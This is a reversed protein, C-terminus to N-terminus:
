PRAGKSRPKAKPPRPTAPGFPDDDLAAQLARAVGVARKVDATVSEVTSVVPVPTVALEGAFLDPTGQAGLLEAMPDLNAVSEVIVVAGPVEAYRRYVHCDIVQVDDKFVVENMADEIAKVCNSGDPKRTPLVQGALARRKQAGSWSAAIPYRLLVSMIVPGEIPPRGAMATAALVRVTSEYQVTKSPTYLHVFPEPEPEEETPKPQVIRGRPREKGMLDGPVTFKIRM